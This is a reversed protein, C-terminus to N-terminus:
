ELEYNELYEVMEKVKPMAKEVEKKVEEHSHKVFALNTVLGLAICPIKLRNAVIVEPTISMGVVDAGLTKLVLKDEFTEYHPGRMFAHVGNKTEPYKDFVAKALRIDFPKSMDVFSAGKYTSRYTITILDRIVVVDGVKLSPNLAGVASVIILRDKKYDHLDSFLMAKKIDNAIDTETYGEYFHKRKIANPIDVTGAYIM